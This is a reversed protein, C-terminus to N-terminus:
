LVFRTLTQSLLTDTVAKLGSLTVTEVEDGLMVNLGTAFSNKAFTSLLSAGFSLAEWKLERM